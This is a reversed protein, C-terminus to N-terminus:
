QGQLRRALSTTVSTLYGMSSSTIIWQAVSKLPFYVFQWWAFLLLCRTFFTTLFREEIKHTHIQSECCIHILMKSSHPIMDYGMLQLWKMVVIIKTLNGCYDSDYIHFFNNNFSKPGIMATGPIQSLYNIGTPQNNMKSQSLEDAASFRSTQTLSSIRSSQSLWHM